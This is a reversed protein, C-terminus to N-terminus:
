DEFIWPHCLSIILFIYNSRNHLSSPVASCRFSLKKFASYSTMGDPLYSIPFFFSSHIVWLPKLTCQGVTLIEPNVGELNHDQLAYAVQKWGPVCLQIRESLRQLVAIMETWFIKSLFSLVRQFDLIIALTLSLSLFRFNPPTHTNM